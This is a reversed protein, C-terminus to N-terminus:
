HKPVSTSVSAVKVLNRGDDDNLTSFDVSDMTPLDRATMDPTSPLGAGM